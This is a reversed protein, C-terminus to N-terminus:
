TAQVLAMGYPRASEIAPREVMRRIIAREWLSLIPRSCFEM